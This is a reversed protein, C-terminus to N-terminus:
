ESKFLAIIDKRIRDMKPGNTQHKAALDGDRDLGVNKTGILSTLKGLLYIRVLECVETGDYSGMTVDFLPNGEKKVWEKGDHFLLSKRAHNIIDTIKGEIEIGSRAFNISKELLEVSISLYFEAIDFKIFKFSKKNEIARFWEIVTSTSRWQNYCLHNNLKDNIEELFRKSVEGMKGKSPNILHGKTNHKFNEKHDKLSIFAPREGYCKM